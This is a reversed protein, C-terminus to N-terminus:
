LTLVSNLLHVPVRQSSHPSLYAFLWKGALALATSDSASESVVAVPFLSDKFVDLPRSSALFAGSFSGFPSGSTCFFDSAAGGTSELPSANGACGSPHEAGQAALSEAPGVLTTCLVALIFLWAVAQVLRKSLTVAKM